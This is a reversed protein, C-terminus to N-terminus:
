PKVNGDITWENTGVKTIMAQAYQGSLKLAANYSNITVGAAAAIVTNGAGYQSFLIQTGVPFAVTANAPVTCTNTAANNGRVMNNADALVLTDTTGTYTRVAVGGLAVKAAAADALALFARGYTTTTLAAIATLDSDLPQSAAAAANAKTTADTAAAAIAAAQATAATGAADFDGTNSFAATGLTTLPNEFSGNASLYKGAATDGAAPAPVQGQTGGTGSDGTFPDATVNVNFDAM